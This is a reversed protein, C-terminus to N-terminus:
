SKIFQQIIKERKSDTRLLTAQMDEDKQIVFMKEVRLAENLEKIKVKVMNTKDMAEILDKRLKSSEAEVSENKSNAIVVKEKNSLYDTKLLM